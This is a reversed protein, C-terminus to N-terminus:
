ARGGSDALLSEIVARNGHQINDAVITMAQQPTLARQDQLAIMKGVMNAAVALMEVASLKGAHKKLVGVLDQYLAEHDLTAEKASM